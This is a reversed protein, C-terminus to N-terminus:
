IKQRYDSTNMVVTANGEDAAFILIRAPTESHHIKKKPVNM